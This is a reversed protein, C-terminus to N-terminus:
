EKDQLMLSFHEFCGERSNSRLNDIVNEGNFDTVGGCMQLKNKNCNLSEFKSISIKYTLCIFIINMFNTVHSDYEKM